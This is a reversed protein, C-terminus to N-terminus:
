DCFQALGQRLIPQLSIRLYNDDGYHVECKVKCPHKSASVELTKITVDIVYEKNTFRNM